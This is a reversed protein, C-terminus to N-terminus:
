EAFMSGAGLNKQRMENILKEREKELQITQERL